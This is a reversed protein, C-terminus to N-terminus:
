LDAGPIDDAIMETILQQDAEGNRNDIEVATIAVSLLSYQLRAYLIEGVIIITM